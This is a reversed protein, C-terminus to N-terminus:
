SMGILCNLGFVNPRIQAVSRSGTRPHGLKRESVMRSRGPFVTMGSIHETPNNLDNRSHGEVLENGVPDGLRETKGIGAKVNRALLQIPNRLCLDVRRRSTIALM